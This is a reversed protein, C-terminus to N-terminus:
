EIFKLFGGRRSGTSDEQNELIIETLKDITEGINPRNGVGCLRKIDGAFSVIAVPVLNNKMLSYPASVVITPGLQSNHKEHLVVNGFDTTVLLARQGYVDITKLLVGSDKGVSKDNVMANEPRQCMYWSEKYDVTEEVSDFVETFAQVIRENDDWVNKESM